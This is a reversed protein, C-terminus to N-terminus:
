TDALATAGVELVADWGSDEISGEYGLYTWIKQSSSPLFPYSGVALAKVLHLFGALVSGCREKDEKILAWPAARDFLKNGEHALEM